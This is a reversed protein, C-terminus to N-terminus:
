ILSSITYSWKLTLSLNRAHLIPKLIIPKLHFFIHPRYDDPTKGPFCNKHSETQRGTWQTGELLEARFSFFKGGQM